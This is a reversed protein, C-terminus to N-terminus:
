KRKDKLIWLNIKLYEWTFLFYTNPCIYIQWFEKLGWLLFRLIEGRSAWCWGSEPLWRGWLQLKLHSASLTCSWLCNWKTLTLETLVALIFIPRYNSSSFASTAGGANMERDQLKVGKGMMMAVSHKSQSLDYSRPFATFSLSCMQLIDRLGAIM